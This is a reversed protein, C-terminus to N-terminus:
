TWRHRVANENIKLRDNGLVQVVVVKSFEEVSDVGPSPQPVSTDLGKTALPTIVMFIVILVLLIDILPVVNMSTMPSNRNGAVDAEM